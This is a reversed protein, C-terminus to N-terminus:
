RVGGNTRAEITEVLERLARWRVRAAWIRPHAKLAEDRRRVLDVLGSQEDSLVAREVEGELKALEPAEDVLAEYEKLARLALARSEEIAREWEGRAAM